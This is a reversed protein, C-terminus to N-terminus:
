IYGKRIDYGIGKWINTKMIRRNQMTRKVRVGAKSRPKWTKPKARVRAKLTNVKQQGYKKTPMRTNLKRRKINHKQLVAKIAQRELTSENTKRLKLLKRTYGKKRLLKYPKINRKIYGKTMFDDRTQARLGELGPSDVSTNAFRATRDIRSATDFM